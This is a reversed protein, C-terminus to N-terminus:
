KKFYNILSFFFKLEYKDIGKLLFLMCFYIIIASFIVFIIKIIENLFQLNMLFIILTGMVSSAFISKFLFKWMLDLKMSKIIIIGYVASIAFAVLTSLAAGLNGLYPILIFNLLINVVVLMIFIQTIRKTKKSLQLLIMALFFFTYLTIGLSIIPVLLSGAIFETTSIIKLIPKALLSLGFMTPIVLMFAYKYSYQFYFKAKEIDGQNWAKSMTQQLLLYIPDLLLKIIVCLSYALAYIGVAKAGSYYGIIYQDSIQLLISLVPMFVLPLGFTFYPKIVKFSPKVFLLYKKINISAIFVLLLKTLIFASIVGILGYGKLLLIYILCMELVVGILEMMSHFKILEKSRFFTMFLYYIVQLVIMIVVFKFFFGINSIHTLFFSIKESFIYITGGLFIAFSLSLMLFSIFETSIKLKNEEGSIFRIIITDLSLVSISALLTVTIKIQSWIGFDTAGLFKTLIPLLLFAQLGLIVKTIGMLGVDKAFKELQGMFTYNLFEKNINQM